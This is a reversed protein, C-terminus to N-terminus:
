FKALNGLDATGPVYGPGHGSGMQTVHGEKKSPAFEAAVAAAM